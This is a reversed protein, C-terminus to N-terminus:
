RADGLLTDTVISRLVVLDADNIELWTRAPEKAGKGATGGQNHVNSWPVMSEVRVTTSTISAKNMRPLRGLLVGRDGKRKDGGVRKGTHKARALAKELSMVAKSGQHQLNAAGGARLRLVEALDGAATPLGQRAKKRLRSAMNKATSARLNGVATVKSTRTQQRHKLTSEALGPWGEQTDAAHKAESRLYGSWRRLIRDPKSAAAAMAKLRAQPASVNVRYYVNM